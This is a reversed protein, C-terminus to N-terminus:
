DSRKLLPLAAFVAPPMAESKLRSVQRIKKFSWVCSSVLMDFNQWLFPDHYLSEMSIRKRIRNFHAQSNQRFGKFYAITILYICKFYVIKIM